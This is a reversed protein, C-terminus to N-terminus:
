AEFSVEGGLMTRVVPITKITDLPEKFPDRGLMVLDALKGPALSGKINEEFSAYAGNRTCIGIAEAVTIKQNEGWVKGSLDKRTAMSQIAMLPEFPGPPYDSAPAVPIGYDLFARHAFMHRLKEDGYEGWKDGHYHAYTYFPAPIAGIAKIRKLLDDNVLTCHEIRYRPDALPKEKLVKEFADLVMAIAVDGNAHLGIQFGSDRADNVADFVQQENMVLIGFDDPRGQYPTSMRMTRESASGDVAYKVAGIRIRDDGFGTRMGAAKLAAYAGSVAGPMFCMRFFMENARRADQYAVLEELDGWANTVSTVGAAAMRQSIRKVGEQHMARTVPTRKGLKDFLFLATEAVRGNLRGDDRYFKGGAPDPTAENVGALAFAKSNVVATHGGRHRVVAPHDPVAADLDARTLGRGDRLKKDDYMFGEVWFGPPTEAAKARMASQIEGITEFSVIAGYVEQVAAPHSHADIFGPFIFLGRGDIVKTEAGVLGDLASASGVAIIRDGQVAIAEAEPQTQEGTRILAGKIVTTAKVAGSKKAAAPSAVCLGLGLAGAGSLMERRGIM